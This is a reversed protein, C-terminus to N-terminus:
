STEVARAPKAPAGAAPVDSRGSPRAAAAAGSRGGVSPRASEPDDEELLIVGEGTCEVFLTSKQGGAAPAVV